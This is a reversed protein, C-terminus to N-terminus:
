QTTEAYATKGREINLTLLISMISLYKNILMESKFKHFKTGVKKTNKSSNSIM